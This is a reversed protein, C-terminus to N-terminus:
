SQQIDMVSRAFIFLQTVEASCMNISIQRKTIRRDFQEAEIGLANGQTNKIKQQGLIRIVENKKRTGGQNKM